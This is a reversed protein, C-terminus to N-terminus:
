AEEGQELTLEVPAQAVDQRVGGGGQHDLPLRAPRDVHVVEELPSRDGVLVDLHERHEGGVRAERHFVGGQVLGQFAREVGDARTFLTHDGGMADHLLREYAENLGTDDPPPRLEQPM